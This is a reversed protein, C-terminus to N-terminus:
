SIRNWGWKDKYMSKWHKKISVHNQDNLQSDIALLKEVVERAWILIPGDQTLSALKFQLQGSQRTGMIDGPGRLKMDVEAIEFGDQTRVMTQLRTKADKSLKFSSVLICHSEQSGRGVRGRLQHLQSLGFREANEVIMVSANPVNVGVEIVTTAVLIHAKGSAFRKMEAEKDEPKMRGHVVAIQYKPRPFDRLLQEYGVELNKLDLTESEEILPFVVYVQHGTAIERQMFGNLKLRNKEFLHQTSIPKRGPPLENIISIDLDGYLSLALTRPIPTATMVLMHPPHENKKWLKARQAVGFRHQEDIIALGLNAFKVTPEILAHTGILIHLEGSLLRQHISARQASKTSGTLLEICIGAPRCLENLGEFHQTALIETPAMLTAQFGNDIALLMALLAVITKGSGVDGQVLRNMQAGTGLDFRIEKVVRKQANTLQFPLHNNYFDLFTKGVEGFQYGKIADKNRIKNRIQTLQLFFFEEFKIRIRAAELHDNSSPFHIWYLAQKKSIIRHQKAFDETFPDTIQDLEKKLVSRIVKSMGKSHLGKKTLKDTTSYVPELASQLENPLSPASIEPHPISKKGKFSNIKGYAVLPTHLKLSRQIWKAGKFWVLEIFGTGDTLTAVLRKQRPPGVEELKTIEGKIQVEISASTLQSVNHFQTKDVYRFPYHELLQGTTRIGLEEALLAARDPGIGEAYVIPTNTTSM